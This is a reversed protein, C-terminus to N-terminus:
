IEHKDLSFNGCVTKSERNIDRCYKQIEHNLSNAPSDVREIYIQRVKEAKARLKEQNCEKELPQHCTGIWEKIWCSPRYNGRTKGQSNNRHCKPRSRRGQLKPKPYVV